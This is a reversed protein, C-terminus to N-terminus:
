FMSELMSRDEAIKLNACKMLWFSVLADKVNRWVYVIKCPCNKLAERLTQFAVHTSFLRPSSSINTLDPKSTEAFLRLELFPVLGHPNDLLLPHDDDYSSHKSRELLAVTLAKLWTTGSKPFSAVIIDTDQPKFGKQFNLIRQLTKDNYWCGQYKFLKTGDFDVDSPLSSILGKSEEDDRHLNKSIEKEDM